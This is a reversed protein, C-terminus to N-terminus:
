RGMSRANRAYSADAARRILIGPDTADVVTTGGGGYLFEGGGETLDIAAQLALDPWGPDTKRRTAAGGGGARAGTETTPLLALPSNTLKVGTSLSAAINSFSSEDMFTLNNVPHERKKFHKCIMITLKANLSGSKPPTSDAQEDFCAFISDGVVQDIPKVPCPVFGKAVRASSTNASGNPLIRQRVEKM